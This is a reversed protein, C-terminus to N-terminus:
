TTTLLISPYLIVPHYLHQAIESLIPHAPFVVRFRCKLSSSLHYHTVSTGLPVSEPCLRSCTCIGQFLVTNSSNLSCLALVPSTPQGRLHWPWSPATLLGPHPAPCRSGGDLAAPSPQPQCHPTAKWTRQSLHKVEELGVEGM